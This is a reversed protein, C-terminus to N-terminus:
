VSSYGLRSKDESEGGHSGSIEGYMHLIVLDLLHFPRPMCRAHPLNVSVYLINNEFSSPFFGSM